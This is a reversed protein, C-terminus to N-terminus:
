GFYMGGNVNITQGTVYSAEHSCLYNVAAAVDAITGLRAVPIGEARGVVSKGKMEGAIMETDILGPAIANTTVGQSSYLKAMSKTFNILGAKAAAYHVQHMGGWQGGISSINIIRGWKRELMGALVCRTCRVAGLLNISLMSEWDTDTLELFPMCQAIGANNVLIDIRGLNIEVYEVALMVSKENSVDIHVPQFSVSDVMDRNRSIPLSNYGAAVIYNANVLAEAIGKGIGRSAGTVLAVRRDNM